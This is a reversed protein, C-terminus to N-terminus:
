TEEISAPAILSPSRHNEVDLNSMRVSFGRAVWDPLEAENTVRVYDKAYRTKSVVYSGDKHRHPKLKTGVAQGRLVTTTLNKM